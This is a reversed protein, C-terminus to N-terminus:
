YCLFGLLLIVLMSALAYTHKTQYSLGTFSVTQTALLFLDRRLLVALALLRVPALYLVSLFLLIAAIAATVWYLWTAWGPYQEPFYGAALSWTILIFVLFWTYHIAIDIGAIRAIRLSGKM